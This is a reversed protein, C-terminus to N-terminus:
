KMKDLRERTKNRLEELENPTRAPDGASLVSELLKRAEDRKNKKDYADALAIKMEANSPASKLGQELREIGRKENGGLLRPLSLDIQGLALYSAGNEFMPDLALAAEFEKRITKVLSLSQFAGKMDAYEGANAAFWFHGEVRNGDIMVAKKAAQIAFDLTKGKKTKDQERDAMYYKFKAARWLADYNSQEKASIAEVIALAQKLSEINDRAAFLRDARSIPTEQAQPPLAFASSFASILILSNLILRGM